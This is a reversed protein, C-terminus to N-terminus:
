AAPQRLRELYGNLVEIGQENCYGGSAGAPFEEDLQACRLRIRDLEPDVIQFTCFDDWDFPGGEAKLFKEIENAVDQKTLNFAKMDLKLYPVWRNLQRPPAFEIL